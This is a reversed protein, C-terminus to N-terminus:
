ASSILNAISSLQREGALLLQRLFSIDEDTQQGNEVRYLIEQIHEM